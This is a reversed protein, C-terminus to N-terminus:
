RRRRRALLLVSGVALLGATAPEPIPALGLSLDDFLTSRVTGSERLTVTDIQTFTGWGTMTVGDVLVNDSETEVIRLTANNSVGIDQFQITYWTNALWQVNSGNQQITSIGANWWETGNGNSVQISGVPVPPNAPAVGGGSFRIAVGGNGSGAGHVYIWPNTFRHETGTIRMKAEFTGGTETLIEDGTLERHYGNTTTIRVGNGTHGSAAEVPWHQTAANAPSWGPVADLTTGDAISDFNEVFAASAAGAGGVVVLGSIWAATAAMSIGRVM